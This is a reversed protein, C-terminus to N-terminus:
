LNCTFELVRANPANPFHQLPNQNCYCEILTEHYPIDHLNNYSCDLWTIRTMYPINTLSNMACDLRSAQINYPLHTLGCNRVCIIDCNPLRPLTALHLNNSCYLEVLQDCNALSYIQTNNCNLYTFNEANISRIPNFSCNLRKIHDLPLDDLTQLGLNSLNLVDNHKRPKKMYDSIRRCAVTFGRSNSEPVSHSTPRTWMKPLFSTM